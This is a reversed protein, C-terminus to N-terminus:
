VESQLVGIWPALVCELYGVFFLASLYTFRADQPGPLRELFTAEDVQACSDVNM